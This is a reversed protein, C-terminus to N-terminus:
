AVSCHEKLASYIQDAWADFNHHSFRRVYSPHDVKWCATAKWLLNSQVAQQALGFAKTGLCLVTQPGHLAENLYTAFSAPTAFYSANTYYGEWWRLDIQDLAQWLWEATKGRDLPFSATLSPRDILGPGSSEGLVVFKPKPGGLGLSAPLLREALLSQDIEREVIGLLADTPKDNQILANLNYRIRVLHTKPDSRAFYIDDYQKVLAEIKDPAYMEEATWRSRIADPADTLLLVTTGRSKHALELCRWQHDTIEKGNGYATGYALGSWYHRDVVVRPHTDAM